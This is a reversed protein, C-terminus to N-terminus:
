FFKLSLFDTIITNENKFYSVENNMPNSVKDTHLLEPDEKGLYDKHASTKDTSSRYRNSTIFGGRTSQLTSCSEYRFSQSLPDGGFVEVYNPPIQLNRSATQIGNLSHRTELCCCVGLSCHQVSLSNRSKHVKVALIILIILFISSITGLAMVLSLSMDPSFGPDTSSGIVNSLTEVDGGIVSLIITVSASLSPIGNDKVLIVLRQKSADRSIIRRITWIEGSDPSITFLNHQTAQLISYSLRANQGADADTASVKAVLYGPEAFRSITEVATSGFEVLPQVIVPANDNQDLIIVDVSVNNALSPTGSDMVYAQIQFHKSEEYDFSRQALIVGTDSNISIYNFVSSNQIQTELLSYKLRANVGIDADFATITFISAGIDNNEMVNTTFLSQRFHPANDNIDSIEVRITKESTLPPHGADTCTITVDYKSTNERDLQHHVIIGYYNKLSSDLKFPLENSIYCEVQGNSGSDEDIATILSVVTGIPADESITTSLSTLKVVPPNDNVDIINVLVDCHGSMADLGGDTAQINLELVSNEEYDLKRKVRIEGTKSDVGFLERVRTSTHSGFSYNIEGNAGDDLDTANLIIVQTGAAASELLSVRYVSQPFAPANDNADNVIITVQATGSRVPVGGDKAVLTLIHRSETERDLSTQLVLVPSKVNGSRMQVDLNFYNSPLLEYTQVSNTGVDLDHAPELPFRTGPISLESIELRFQANPFSPVNDNVDLIEVTVQYLKLPNELFVDLSLACSLSQGCIEERDISKTVILIGTDLNIDVYQEKPGTIIRLNRASLQKIDLSLDEAINGVFAGLQLEEPILYRIQGFVLNWSSFM